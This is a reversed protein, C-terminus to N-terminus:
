TSALIDKIELRQRDLGDYVHLLKVMQKSNLAKVPIDNMLRMAAVISGQACVLRNRDQERM